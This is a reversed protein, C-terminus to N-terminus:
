ITSDIPHSAPFVVFNITSEDHRLFNILELYSNWRYASPMNKAYNQVLWPLLVLTDSPIQRYSAHYVTNSAFDFQIFEKKM